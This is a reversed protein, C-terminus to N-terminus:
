MMCMTGDNLSNITTSLLWVQQQHLKKRRFFIHSNLKANTTITEVHWKISALHQFQVVYNLIDVIKYKTNHLCKTM